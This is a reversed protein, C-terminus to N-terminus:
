MKRFGDKVVVVGARCPVNTQMNKEMRKINGRYTYEKM